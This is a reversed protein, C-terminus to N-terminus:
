SGIQLKAFCNLLMYLGDNIHQLFFRGNSIDPVTYSMPKLTGIHTVIRHIFCVCVLAFYLAMWYYTKGTMNIKLQWHFHQIVM